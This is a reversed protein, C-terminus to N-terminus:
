CEQVHMELERTEFLQRYYNHQREVFCRCACNPQRAITWNSLPSVATGRRQVHDLMTDSSPTHDRKHNSKLLANSQQDQDLAGDICCADEM